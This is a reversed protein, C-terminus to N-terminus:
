KGAQLSVQLESEKDQYEKIIAQIYQDMEQVKESMESMDKNYKERLKELEESSNIEQATVHNKLSSTLLKQKDVEECLRQIEDQLAKTELPSKSQEALLERKLLGM